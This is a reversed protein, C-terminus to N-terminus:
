INCSCTGPAGLLIAIDRVFWSARFDSWNDVHFVLPLICELYFLSHSYILEVSKLLDWQSDSWLVSYARTSRFCEVLKKRSWQRQRLINRTGVVVYFQPYASFLSRVITLWYSSFSSLFTAFHFALIDNVAVVPWVVTDTFMRHASM